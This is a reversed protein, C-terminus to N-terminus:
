NHKRFFSFCDSLRFNLHQHSSKKTLGTLKQCKESKFVSVPCTDHYSTICCFSIHIKGCIFLRWFKPIPGASFVGCCYPHYYHHHKGKQSPQIYTRFFIVPEFSRYKSHVIRVPRLYCQHNSHVVCHLAPINPNQWHENPIFFSQSLGDATRLVPNIGKEWVANLILSSYNDAAM